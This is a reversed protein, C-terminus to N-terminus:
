KRSRQFSEFASVLQDITDVGRYETPEVLVTSGPEGVEAGSTIVDVFAAVDTDATDVLRTNPVIYSEDFTPLRVAYRWGEDSIFNFRGGEEVDSTAEPASKLGDPVAHGVNISIGTIQGLILTDIRPALFDAFDKAVPLPTDGAIWVTLTSKANKQDRVQFNIGTATM